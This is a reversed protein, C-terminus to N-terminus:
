VFPDFETIKIDDFGTTPKCLTIVHEPYLYTKYYLERGGYKVTHTEYDTEFADDLIMLGKGEEKAFAERITWLRYFEEWPKKSSEIREYESRSFFRGLNRDKKEKVEEVDIGVPIGETDYAFVALAGSHSLNYEFGPVNKLYPKGYEGSQIDPEKEIGELSLARRLLLAGAVSRAKDADFRYKEAKLIEEKSIRDYLVDRKKILGTKNIDTIIIRM